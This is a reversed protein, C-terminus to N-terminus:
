LFIHFFFVPGCEGDHQRSLYHDRLPRRPTKQLHFHFVRQTFRPEPICLRHERWLTAANDHGPSRRRVSGFLSGPIERPITVNNEVDFPDSIWSKSTIKFHSELFNM